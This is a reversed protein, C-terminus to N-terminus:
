MPRPRFTGAGEAVGSAGGLALDRVCGLPRLVPTRYPRRELAAESRGETSEQSGPVRSGAAARDAPPAM